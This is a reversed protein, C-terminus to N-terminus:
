GTRLSRAARSFPTRAPVCSGGDCATTRARLGGDGGGRHSGGGRMRRPGPQDPGACRGRRFRCRGDARGGGAGMGALVRGDARTGRDHRGERGGTTSRERFRSRGRHMPCGPQVHHASGVGREMTCRRCMDPLTRAFAQEMQWLAHRTCGGEQLYRRHSKRHRRPHPWESRSSLLRSEQPRAEAAPGPTLAGRAATPAWVRRPRM